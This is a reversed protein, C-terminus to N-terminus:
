FSFTSVKSFYAYSLISKAKFSTKSRPESANPTTQSWCQRTGPTAPKTTDPGIELAKQAIDKEMKELKAIERKLRFM